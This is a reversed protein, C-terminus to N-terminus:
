KPKNKKLDHYTIVVESDIRCSDGESFKKDGNVTISEIDGEESLWGTIIDYVVNVTINTFGAQTFESVVEDYKMKKAEKASLPVKVQKIIHYEVKIPTNSPFKKNEDFNTTFGIKVSTVKNEKSADAVSLDAICDEDVFIFGSAKLAGVVTEYDDGILDSSSYGVPIRISFEYYGFLAILAIVLIFISIGIGKKHKRRWARNRAQREKGEAEQQAEKEREAAMAAAVGAGLITGFASGLSEAFAGSSSSYEDGDDEDDDVDYYTSSNDSEYYSGSGDANKYGWSGDAGYYSGSGDENQYGWSGDEGYYSGSGDENKYGWSGDDDSNFTENVDDSNLYDWGKDKKPM